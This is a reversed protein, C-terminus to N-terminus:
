PMSALSLGPPLAEGFSRERETPTYPHYERLHRELTPESPFHSLIEERLSLPLDLETLGALRAMSEFLAVAQAPSVASPLWELLQRVWRSCTAVPVVHSMTGFLLCRAAVRGLAWFEPPTAKGSSIRAVLAEGLATKSTLEIAELSALTRLQEYYLNWGSGKGDGTRPLQLQPKGKSLLEPLLLGAVQRQQGATLGGAIRRLCILQYSWLEQSKKSHLEGLLLRWLEKVRHDDLPYGTGPMLSLGALHWFRKEHLQSLSRMAAVAKLPPWFARLVSPPWGRRPKGVLEELQEILQEPAAGSGPTYAAGILESAQQGIQATLTVDAFAGQHPQLDSGEASRLQFELNWRHMTETSQAWLALTGIPTMQAHLHVPIQQQQGKGYRLQTELPPLQQLELPDIDILDGLRDSSRTHSTYLSFSIPQNTQLTFLHPLEQSTGEETSRELLTVAKKQQVGARDTVHLGVYYSRATRSAIRCSSLGARAKAFAVAGRAVATKYHGPSLLQLEGEPFWRGLAGCIAEQLLASQIAGGNFLLHTPRRGEGYRDLFRALQRVLSPEREYPLGMSRLAQPTSQQRAQDWPEYRFFGDVVLQELETRQLQYSRAKAVLSAGRGSLLLHAKETAGSLLIEKAQRCRHCLQLWEVATLEQDSRQLKEAVYHAIAHDINEGGLLLHDGVAIRELKLEPEKASVAILSFDTTGGGIDCVLIRDGPQLQQGGKEDLWNYFAAQPEELLTFHGCGAQTAAEATLQRAVEDFSAPVTIVLQQQSWESDPDQRAMSWNWSQAMHSLYRRTAEVPSIRLPAEALPPLIPDCRAAVAHCLWSKAASVLRMPHLGGEDRAFHGVTWGLPAPAWPPSSRKEGEDYLYCFSPLEEKKALLGGEVLQLLPFLQIAPRPAKLDLYAVCSNTTGLDVGILYRALM